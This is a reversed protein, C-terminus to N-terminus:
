RSDTPLFQEGTDALKGRFVAMDTLRQFQASGCGVRQDLAAFWTRGFGAFLKRMPVCPLILPLAVVCAPSLLRLANKERSNSYRFTKVLCM